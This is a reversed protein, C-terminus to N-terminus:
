PTNKKRRFRLATISSPPLTLTMKNGELRTKSESLAVVGPAQWTNRAMYGPGKIVSLKVQASAPFDHLTLTVSLTKEARRNTLICNLETRRPNLLAVVDLYPANKVAPVPGPPVDFMPTATVTKVPLVGSQRAYLACAFHVPNPFVIQRVNRLGGGHNVLASHTVLEVLGGTRICSNVIGSYFLAESLTSNNPLSSKNTFIQLETVAFLPRSMYPAAHAALNRIHREYNWAYGMLAEFVREPDADARFGGGILTHVSLSRVHSGKRRLLPENWRPNQGNAIILIREDRAKMARYFKEYREAYEEPTCHGIQWRGWLENGIEWYRVNYPEVHGNAARLAGYETDTSGNCYEVWEAAERPTGDGANVCILAECGVARCFAMFEDTGVHNYEAVHWAPNRKTPRRDVPGIGDKWRYGSAFNGGPYRLIPLRSEKILRVVDRDFGDISDAPFLFIRDLYLDGPETIGVALALAEGKAAAGPPLVLSTRFLKWSGALGEVVSEALKKERDSWKRISLTVKSVGGSRKAYFRIRYDHERHLPLFIPQMVGSEGSPAAAVSIKQSREGNVAAPALAFSTEGTGYPIWGLAAGRRFSRTIEERRPVILFHRVTRIAEAENRGFPPWSEFGPNVLVQAWMGHYINRWLHETFKGFLLRSIPKEATAKAFVDVTASDGAKRTFRWLPEEARASPPLLVSLLLFAKVAFGAAKRRIV